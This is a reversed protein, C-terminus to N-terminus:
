DLASPLQQLAADLQDVVDKWHGLMIKREDRGSLREQHFGVTTGTEAERVTVQRTSDHDWEGPQWTLRIRFGPTYSLIHGRIDDTTAYEAGKELVLTADGLWLALGDEFLFDWVDELPLAFTHRVGVEWGADKTAGVTSRAADAGSGSGTM